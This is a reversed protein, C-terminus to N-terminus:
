CNTWSSMPLLKLTATRPIWVFQVVAYDSTSGLPALDKMCNRYAMIVVLKSSVDQIVAYGSTIEKQDDLAGSTSTAPTTWYGAPGTSRPQSSKTGNNQGQGLGAGIFRATALM